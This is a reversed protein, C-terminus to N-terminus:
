GASKKGVAPLRAAELKPYLHLVSREFEYRALTLKSLSDPLPEKSAENMDLGKEFSRTITEEIGDLWSRTQEIGRKGPEVPGHGPILKSFPIQGLQGLTERWVALNAHPTTPARDLFVLDGTILIGTKEDFIALDSPTHGALAFLQLRRGGIDETGTTVPTEPVVVDTGRMWDRAIYYMADSFANGATKIGDIVGQPAAISKAAFGQSGFMHDPHFHTIYVRAIDKGTLDRAVKALEDGFRRSPGTDVIIAGAPSDLITINAIAGGNELTIVEPRGPIIWVGPVIAVPKLNYSLPGAGAVFMPLLPQVAASASLALLHRRDLRPMACRSM